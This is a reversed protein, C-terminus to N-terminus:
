IQGQTAELTPNANKCRVRLWETSTSPRVGGGQAQGTDRKSDVHEPDCGVGGWHGGEFRLQAPHTVLNAGRVDRHDDSECESGDLASLQPVCEGGRATGREREKERVRVEIFDIADPL